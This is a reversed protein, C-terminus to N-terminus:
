SKLLGRLLLRMGYGVFGLFRVSPLSLLRVRARWFLLVFLSFLWPLLVLILIISVVAIVVLLLRVVITAVMIILLLLVVVFLALILFAVIAWLEWHLM